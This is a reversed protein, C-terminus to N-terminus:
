TSELIIGSITTEEEEEDYSRCYRILSHDHKILKRSLARKQVYTTITTEEEEKDYSRCYRILSHNYKITLHSRCAHVNKFTSSPSSSSSSSLTQSSPKERKTSTLDPLDLRVSAPSRRGFGVRELGFNVTVRKTFTDYRLRPAGFDLLDFCAGRQASQPPHLWLTRPNALKVTTCKFTGESTEIQSSVIKKRLQLFLADVVIKKRDYLCQLQELTSLGRCKQQKLLDHGTWKRRSDVSKPVCVFHTGDSLVVRFAFDPAKINLPVRRRFRPVQM